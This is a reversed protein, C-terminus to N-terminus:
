LNSAVAEVEGWIPAAGVARTEVLLADKCGHGRLSVGEYRCMRRIRVQSSGSSASWIAPGKERLVLRHYVTGVPLRKTRQALRCVVRVIWWRLHRRLRITRPRIRAVIVSARRRM